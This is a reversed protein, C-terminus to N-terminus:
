KREDDRHRPHRDLLSAALMFAVAVVIVLLAFLGIKEIVQLM